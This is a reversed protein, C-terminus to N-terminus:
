NDYTHTHRSNIVGCSSKNVVFGRVVMPLLHNKETIFRKRPSASSLLILVLLIRMM